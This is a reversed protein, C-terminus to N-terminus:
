KQQQYHATTGTSSKPHAMLVDMGMQMKQILYYSTVMLTVFNGDDKGNLYFHFSTGEQTLGATYSTGVEITTTANHGIGDVKSTLKYSPTIKDDIALLLRGTGTGNQMSALATSWSQTGPNRVDQTFSTFITWDDDQGIFNPISGTGHHQHGTADYVISGGGENLMLTMELGHALPHFPKLKM